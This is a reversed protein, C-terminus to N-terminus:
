TSRQLASSSTFGFAATAYVSMVIEARQGAHERGFYARPRRLARVDEVPAKGVRSRLHERLELLVVEDVAGRHVAALRVVRDTAVGDVGHARFIVVQELAHEVEAPFRHVHLRGHDLVALVRDVLGVGRVVQLGLEAEPTAAALLCLGLGLPKALYDFCPSASSSAARVRM